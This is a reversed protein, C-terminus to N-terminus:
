SNIKNIIVSHFLVLCYFRQSITGKSCDILGCVYLSSFHNGDLFHLLLIRTPVLANFKPFDLGETFKVVVVDNFEFLNEEYGLFEVHDELIKVVVEVFDVGFHFLFILLEGFFLDLVLGRLYFCPREFLWHVRLFACFHTKGCPCSVM